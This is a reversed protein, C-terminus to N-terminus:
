LFSGLQVTFMGPLRDQVFQPLQALIWPDTGQYTRWCGRPYGIRFLSLCSLLSGRILARILEGADVLTERESLVIIDSPSCFTTQVLHQASEDLLLIQTTVQKSGLKYM